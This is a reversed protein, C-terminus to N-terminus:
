PTLGLLRAPNERSMRAIEAESLGQRRLAVLFQGFGDPPLPNNPQGLDTSLICHEVGVARIADAFQKMREDAGRGTPRGGAFELFAGLAAAQRMQEVNMLVPTFMAHTVVMHRVNQRQGERLLLLAEDASSHGTALVLDRRAIIGIVERVDPLLAGDRAVPVFPRNEKNLRVGNESDFTPMWVVRGLGGSIAAMHEVAAPNIGGVPRNLAIGGFVQVGPVIKQVITALGATSDYHNKLVIGRMGRSQALRAVDIADISRPRDDPYSHVHIDITGALLRAEEATDPQPQGGVVGPATALLTALAIAALRHRGRPSSRLSATGSAVPVVSM